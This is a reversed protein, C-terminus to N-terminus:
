HSSDLGPGGESLRDVHILYNHRVFKHVIGHILVDASGPQYVIPDYSQLVVGVCNVPNSGPIKVRVLDGPFYQGPFRHEAM